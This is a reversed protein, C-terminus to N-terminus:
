TMLDAIHVELPGKGFGGDPEQDIVWWPLLVIPAQLVRIARAFGQRYQGMRERTGDIIQELTLRRAIHLRKQLPLAAPHALRSFNSPGV